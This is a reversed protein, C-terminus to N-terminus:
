KVNGGKSKYTAIFKDYERYPQNYRGPGQPLAAWRRSAKQLASDIDGAVIDDIVSLRRLIEIALLDQTLPSFDNLGMRRGMDRWTERTIQYMGAATFKGGCGPGPHNSFDSFKWTDNKKGKVGGYM